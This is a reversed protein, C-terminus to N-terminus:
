SGSTKSNRNRIIESSNNYLDFDGLDGRVAHSYISTVAISSHGANDRITPLDLGAAMAHSIYTHRCSHCSLKPNFGCKAFWFKVRARLGRTTFLKRRESLFLYSEGDIPETLVKSKIKILDRLMRVSGRSLIVSRRKGGKGQRVTLSNGHFDSVRLAALEAVRLGSELLVRLIFYDRVHTLNKQRQIALDKADSLASYLRQVEELSLFLDKTITWFRQVV